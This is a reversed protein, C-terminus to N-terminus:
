KSTCKIARFSFLFLYAKTPYPAAANTSLGAARQFSGRQPYRPPPSPSIAALWLRLIQTSPRANSGGSSPTSCRPHCTPTLRPSSRLYSPREETPKSNPPRTTPRTPPRHFLASPMPDSPANSRTPTPAQLPAALASRAIPTPSYLPPSRRPPRTSETM